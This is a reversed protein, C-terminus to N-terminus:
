GAPIYVADQQLIDSEIENHKFIFHYCLRYSAYIIRNKYIKQLANQCQIIILNHIAQMGTASLSTDRPVHSFSWCSMRTRYPPVAAGRIVLLNDRTNMCITQTQQFNVSMEAWTQPRFCGSLLLIAYEQVRFISAFHEASIYTSKLVSFLYRRSFKLDQLAFFLIQRVGVQRLPQSTM